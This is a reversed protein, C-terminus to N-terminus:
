ISLIQKYEDRAKKIGIRQCPNILIMKKILHFLSLPIKNIKSFQKHEIFLKILELLLIFLTIGLMYVDIKSIIDNAKDICIKKYNEQILKSINTSDKNQSLYMKKLLPNFIFLFNKYNM